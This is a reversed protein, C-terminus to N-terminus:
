GSRGFWWSGTSFAHGENVIRRTQGVMYICIKGQLTISFFFSISELQHNWGMQFINTLNSWRGLYTHFYFINSVVVYSRVIKGVWKLCLFFSPGHVVALGCCIHSSKTAAAQRWTAPIIWITTETAGIEPPVQLRPSIEGKNSWSM